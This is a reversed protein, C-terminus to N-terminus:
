ACSRHALSYCITDDSIRTAISLLKILKGQQM